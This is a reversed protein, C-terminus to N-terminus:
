TQSGRNGMAEYLPNFESTGNGGSRGGFQGLGDRMMKLKSQQAIVM